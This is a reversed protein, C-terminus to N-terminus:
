RRGFLGDLMGRKRPARDDEIQPQIRPGGDVADMRESLRQLAKEVARVGKNGGDGGQKLGDIEDAMRLMQDQMRAIQDRLMDVEDHMPTAAETYYEPASPRRPAPVYRDEPTEHRADARPRASQRAQKPQPETRETSEVPHGRPPAQTFSVTPAEPRTDKAPKRPASAQGEPRRSLRRLRDRLSLDVNDVQGPDAKPQFQPQTNAAVEPLPAPAVQGVTEVDDIRNDAWRSADNMALRRGPIRIDTMSM